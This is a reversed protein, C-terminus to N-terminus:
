GIARVTLTMYYPPFEKQACELIVKPFGEVHSPLILLDIDEDLLLKELLANSLSGHFKLNKYRINNINFRGNGSGVVHFVLEENLKALEIYDDIGKRKLDHGILIVQSLKDKEKLSYMENKDNVGLYLIKEDCTVGFEKENFEKMFYTISYLNETKKYDSIINSKQKATKKDIVSEITRFYKKKFIRCIFRNWKM